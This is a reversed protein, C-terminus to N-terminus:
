RPRPPRTTVAPERYAFTAAPEVWFVPRPYFRHFAGVLARAHEPPLACGAGQTGDQNRWRIVM